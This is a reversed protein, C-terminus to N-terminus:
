LSIPTFETGSEEPPSSRREQPSRRELRYGHQYVAHLHWGSSESTLDLKKRLRSIHTDVTRTNIEASHGWVAGLLHHRSIVRGANRFVFRALEFEKETLNIAKGNRELTHNDLDFRYVGYDSIRNKGLTIRRALAHIRAIFERQGVSWCIYDDAGNNLATVIAEESSSESLVLIPINWTLNQKIWLLFQESTKNPLTKDLVVIDFSETQLSRTALTNSKYVCCIHGKNKLLTSVNSPSDSDQSILAIRLSHPHLDPM